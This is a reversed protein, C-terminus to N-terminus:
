GQPEPQDTRCHTGKRDGHEGSQHPRRNGLLAPARPGANLRRQSRAFDAGFSARPTQGNRTRPQAFKLLIGTAGSEVCGARRRGHLQSGPIVTRIAASCSVRLAGVLVARSPGASGPRLTSIRTGAHAHAGFVAPPPQSALIVTRIAASCSVRLAAVLAARSPGASGPRLTSIRTGAHAHVGFVAPPRQGRKLPFGARACSGHADPNRARIQPRLRRAM